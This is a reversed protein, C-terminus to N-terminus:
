SEPADEPRAIEYKRMKEVLTTRQLNLMKAARAVVWDCQELAQVMLSRELDALHTKLDLGDASLLVPAEVPSASQGEGQGQIHAEGPIAASEAPDGVLAHAAALQMAEDSRLLVNVDGSVAPAPSDGVFREPLESVGVRGNPYLIALREVLNSLERVNGPWPYRMLCGMAEDNLSVSGRQEREMLAVFRKILAPIDEV